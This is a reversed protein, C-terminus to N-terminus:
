KQTGSVTNKSWSRIRPGFKYLVIPIPALAISLFGLLSTAWPFGLGHYLYPAFLPFGAGFFSRVFTNGSIASNAIPAYVDILYNFSQVFIMFMGMGTPIGAIVMGSWHTTPQYTWAFIFLGVPLLGGGVIMIPLRQEPIIKGGNAKVSPLFRVQTDWIVIVVGLLIGVLLGLFPLSSLGLSWHRIEVFAIPYSTFVLYLLGYIFAQYVTVIVLIPETALLAFPRLLYTRVIEGLTLQGKDDFATKANPKEQTQRLRAARAQLIRPALTEPLFFLALILSTGGLITSLWHLWRWGLYSAAVFNGIIPALVPAGFLIGVYAAIVAGRREPSWIDVVGGAALSLPASGFAGQFFRAVLLTQINTGVAVVISFVTFLSLGMAAPWKRGFRESSPGWLPPGVTYGLLFLSTGLTVVITSQHFEVRIASSGSSWISSAITTALNSYVWIFTIFLKRSLSYNQPNEPDEPGNWTVFNVAEDNVGTDSGRRTTTPSIEHRESLSVDTASASHISM